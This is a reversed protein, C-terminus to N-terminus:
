PETSIAQYTEPLGFIRIQEELAALNKSDPQRLYEVLNQLLWRYDVHPANFLVHSIMDLCEDYIEHFQNEAIRKKLSDDCWGWDYAISAIDRQKFDLVFMIRTSPKHNYIRIMVGPYPLEYFINNKDDYKM